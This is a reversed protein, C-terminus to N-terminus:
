KFVNNVDRIPNLPKLTLIYDSRSKYEVVLMIMGISINNNNNNYVFEIFM